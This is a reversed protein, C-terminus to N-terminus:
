ETEAITHAIREATIDTYHRENWGALATIGRYDICLVEKAIGLDELTIAGKSIKRRPTAMKQMAINFEVGGSVESFRIEDEFVAVIPSGDIALISGDEEVWIPVESNSNQVTSRNLELMAEKASTNAVLMDGSLYCIYGQPRIARLSFTNYIIEIVELKLEGNDYYRIYVCNITHASYGEKRLIDGIAVKLEKASTNLPANFLRQSLADLRAYHEEFYLPEYGQTRIYEYIYAM